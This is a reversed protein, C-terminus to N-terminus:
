GGAVASVVEVVDGEALRTSAVEGRPVVVGNRAVASGPGPALLDVLDSLSRADCDTVVGNLLIKM